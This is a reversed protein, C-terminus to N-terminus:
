CRAYMMMMMTMMLWEGVQKVVDLPTVVADHAMTAIGGAAGNAIPHYGEKNGGFREKCSQLATCVCSV